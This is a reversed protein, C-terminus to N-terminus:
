SRLRHNNSRQHAKRQYGRADGCYTTRREQRLACSRRRGVRRGPRGKDARVLIGLLRALGKEFEPASAIWTHVGTVSATAVNRVDAKSLRLILEEHERHAPRYEGLLLEVSRRLGNESSVPRQV